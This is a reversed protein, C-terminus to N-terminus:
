FVQHSHKGCSESSPQRMAQHMNGWRDDSAKENRTSNPHGTAGGNEVAPYPLRLHM